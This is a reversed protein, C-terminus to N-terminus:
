TWSEMYAQKKINLCMKEYPINSSISSIGIAEVSEYESFLKNGNTDIANYNRGDQSVVFIEKTPNPIDLSSYTPEVICEGNKSIVGYKGNVELKYYERDSESIELLNYEYKKNNIYVILGVVIVLILIISIGLIIMAKKNKKNM